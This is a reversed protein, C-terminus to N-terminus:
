KRNQVTNTFKGDLFKKGNLNSDKYKGADIQRSPYLIPRYDERNEYGQGALDPHQKPSKFNWKQQSELNHQSDSVASSTEMTEDDVERNKLVKRESNVPVKTKSEALLRLCKFTPKIKGLINNGNHQSTDGTCSVSQKSSVQGGSKVPLRWGIRLSPARKSSQDSETLCANDTDLSLDLTDDLSFKNQDKVSQTVDKKMAAEVSIIENQHLKSTTADEIQKMNNFEALCKANSICRDLGVNNNNSVGVLENEFDFEDNLPVVAELEGVNTETQCKNMYVGADANMFNEKAELGDKALERSLNDGNEQTTKGSYNREKLKNEENNCAEIEPVQQESGVSVSTKDLMNEQTVEENFDDDALLQELSDTSSLTDPFPNNSQKEDGAVKDASNKDLFSAEEKTNSHNDFNIMSCIEKSKSDLSKENLGGRVNAGSADIESFGDVQQSDFGDELPKLFQKSDNENSINKYLVRQTNYLGPSKELTIFEKKSKDISEVKKTLMDMDIDCDDSAQSAIYSQWRSKKLKDSCALGPSLNGTEEVSNSWVSEATYHLPSVTIKSKRHLSYEESSQSNSVLPVLDALVEQRACSKPDRSTDTLSLQYDLYHSSDQSNTCSDPKANKQDENKSEIYRKSKQRESWSAQSQTDSTQCNSSNRVECEKRLFEEQYM